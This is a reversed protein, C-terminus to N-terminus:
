PARRPAALPPATSPARHDCAGLLRRCEAVSEDLATLVEAVNHPITDGLEPLDAPNQSALAMVSGPNQAIHMALAGLTRSRPHPAWAFKAEPVREQHYAGTHPQHHTWVRRGGRGVDRRLHSM